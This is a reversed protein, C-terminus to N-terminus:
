CSFPGGELVRSESLGYRVKCFAKHQTERNVRFGAVGPSVTGRIDAKGLGQETEQDRM